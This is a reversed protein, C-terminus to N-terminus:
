VDMLAKLRMLNDNIIDKNPFRKRAKEWWMKAEQYKKENAYVIGINVYAPLMNKDKKIADKYYRKAEKYKGRKRCTEALAFYVDGQNYGLDIAKRYAREAVHYHNHAAYISGLTAYAPAFSPDVELAKRIYKEGSSIKGVSMYVTAMVHLLRSDNEFRELAELLIKEARDYNQMHYFVTAVSFYSSAKNKDIIINTLERVNSRKCFIIVISDVYVAQWDNDQSIELLFSRMKIKLSAHVMQQVRAHDIVISDFRYKEELAEWALSSDLAKLTEEFVDKPYVELRGDIFVKKAPWLKWIMFSGVGLPFNLIHGNIRKEKIFDMAAYPFRNEVVSQGQLIKKFSEITQGKAVLVFCFCLAILVSAFIRITYVSEHNGARKQPLYTSSNMITIFGLVLAAPIINRVATFGIAAFIVTLFLSLRKKERWAAISSYVSVILLGLFGYGWGNKLLAYTFPQFEVIDYFIDKTHILTELVRLPFFFGDIGYPNLLCAFIAAFFSISIIRFRKREDSNNRPQMLGSVWYLALLGLGMIFFVHTNVWICQMIPVVYWMWLNNRKECFIIKLYIVLFLYSIWEPRLVVRYSVIYLCLFLVSIGVVNHSSLRSGKVILYFVVLGIGCKLAILAIMGQWMHLIAVLIQFLWHLNVWVANQASFSYMDRHPISHTQIIHYGTKLHTWIDYNGIPRFFVFFVAAFFTSWLICALCRNTKNLLSKIIKM